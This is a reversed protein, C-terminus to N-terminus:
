KIVDFATKPAALNPRVMRAQFQALIESETFLFRGGNRIAPLEGKAVRRYITKSSCRLIDSVEEVTLLRPLGTSGTM